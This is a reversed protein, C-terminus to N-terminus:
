VSGNTITEYTSLLDSTKVTATFSSCSVSTRPNTMKNYNFNYTNGKTLGAAASFVNQVVIQTIPNNSVDEAYVCPPIDIVVKADIPVNTAM